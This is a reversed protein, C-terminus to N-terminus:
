RILFGDGLPDDPEVTFEGRGTYFARGAVQVVVAPRGHRESETVVRATFESGTVGSFTCGREAPLRGAAHLLSCCATTASGCPSRDIQGDAFVTVLRVSDPPPAPASLPAFDAFVVGYLFGLDANDPHQIKVGTTIIHNKVRTAERLYDAANAAGGEALGVDAARLIAYFAGGYCIDLRCSGGDPVPMRLDSHLVFAPVSLFRATNDQALWARVLGCPCQINVVTEGEAARPVVDEDVLYRALALVGHGCMTSYGENHLFLAAMHANPNDPTVLYAGYMDRHGRPEGMLLRRYRDLQDRCFRRKELLTAGVIPPLGSVVIRLPEGGTHMEITKVPQGPLAVPEM